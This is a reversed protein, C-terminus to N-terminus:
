NNQPFIKSKLIHLLLKLYQYCDDFHSHLSDLIEKQEELLELFDSTPFESFSDHKEHLDLVKTFAKIIRSLSENYIALPHGKRYDMNHLTDDLLHHLLNYVEPAVNGDCNISRKIIMLEM